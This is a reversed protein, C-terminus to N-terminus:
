SVGLCPSLLAENERNWAEEGSVVQLVVRMSALNGHISQAGDGMSVHNFYAPNYHISKAWDFNSSGVKTNGDTLPSRVKFGSRRGERIQM